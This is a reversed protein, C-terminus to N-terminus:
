PPGSVFGRGVPLALQPVGGVGREVLHVRRLWFALAAALLGGGPSEVVDGVM